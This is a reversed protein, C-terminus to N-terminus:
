REWSRSILTIQLARFTLSDGREYAKNLYESYQSETLAAQIYAALSVDGAAWAMSIPLFCV